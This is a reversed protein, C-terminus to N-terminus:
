TRKRLRRAPVGAWVEYPPVDKTVVSGAGIISSEGIRTGPLIVTGAGIDCGDELVVEAFEVPSFYVPVDIQDPQHQSTLITVKPGIGVARGIRLGGASHLFSQQGIWTQDGIVMRNKFYGKLITYHGIYVNEGIEINEPHFVLTGKEFVVNKGIKLFDGRRFTGTGHSKNRRSQIFKM